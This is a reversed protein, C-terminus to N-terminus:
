WTLYIPMDETSEFIRTAVGESSVVYIGTRNDDVHSVEFRM